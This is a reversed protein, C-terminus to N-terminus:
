HPSVGTSSFSGGFSRTATRNAPDFVRDIVLSGTAGAFRGTGGTITTEETISVPPGPQAHGTYTGSVTDGNAATLVLTGVASANLFNVTEEMALTYRGLHTANGEGRISEHSIPFDGSEEGYKGELTGKFPVLTGARSSQALDRTVSPTSKDGGLVVDTLNAGAPAM